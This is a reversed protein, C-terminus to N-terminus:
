RNRYYQNENRPTLNFFTHNPVEGPRLRRQEFSPYKDVVVNRTERSGKETIRFIEQSRDHSIRRNDISVKYDHRGSLAANITEELKRSNAPNDLRLVSNIMDDIVESGRLGNEMVSQTVLSALTETMAAEIDQKSVVNNNSDNKDMTALRVFNEQLYKQALDREAYHKTNDAAEQLDIGGELLPSLTLLHQLAKMERLSKTMQHSFTSDPDFNHLVSFDMYSSQGDLLSDKAQSGKAYSFKDITEKDTGVEIKAIDIEEGLYNKYTSLEVEAKLGTGKLAANLEDQKAQADAANAPMGVWDALIQKQAPTLVKTKATAELSSAISIQMARRLDDQSINDTGGSLNTFNRLALMEAEDGNAVSNVFKQLEHRSLKGNGDENEGTDVLSMHSKLNRLAMYNTLEPSLLPEKRTAATDGSLDIITTQVDTGERVGVAKRWTSLDGGWTENHVSSVEPKEIEGVDDSNEVPEVTNKVVISHEEPRKESM